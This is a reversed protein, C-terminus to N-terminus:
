RYDTTSCYEVRDLSDTSHDRNMGTRDL